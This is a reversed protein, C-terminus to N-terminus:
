WFAGRYGLHIPAAAIFFQQEHRRASGGRGMSPSAKALTLTEAGAVRQGPGGAAAPDAAGVSAPGRRQPRLRGCQHRTSTPRNHQGLVPAAGVRVRFVDVSCCSRRRRHLFASLYFPLPPPQKPSCPAAVAAPFLAFSLS